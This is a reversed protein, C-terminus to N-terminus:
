RPHKRSDAKPTAAGPSRAWLRRGDFGLRYDAAFELVVRNPSDLFSQFVRAAQADPRLHRSFEPYFWDKVARSEHVVCSGKYSVTKGSGMSTGTSTVCVAARPSERIAQVRARKEACTLWLKGDWPLFSMIVGFAEGKQNSWIFTCEKQERLLRAEQEPDLACDSLDEYDTSDRSM